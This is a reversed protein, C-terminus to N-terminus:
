DQQRHRTDHEVQGNPTAPRPGVRPMAEPRQARCADRKCDCSGPVRQRRNAIGGSKFERPTANGALIVAEGPEVEQVLMNEAEQVHSVWAVVIGDRTQQEPSEM